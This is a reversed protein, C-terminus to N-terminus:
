LNAFKTSFSSRLTVAIFFHVKKVSSLQTELSEVKDKADDSTKKLKNVQAQQSANARSVKNREDELEKVRGKLNDNEEDKLFIWSFYYVQKSSLKAHLLNNLEM